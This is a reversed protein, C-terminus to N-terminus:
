TSCCDVADDVNGIQILHLPWTVEARVPIVHGKDTQICFQFTFFLQVTPLEGLFHSKM